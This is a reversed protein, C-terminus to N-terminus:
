KINFQESHVLRFSSFSRGENGEGGGRGGGEGGDGRGGGGRVASVRLTANETIRRVYDQTGQDTASQMSYM